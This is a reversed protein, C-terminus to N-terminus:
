LRQLFTYYTRYDVDVFSRSPSNNCTYLYLPQLCSFVLLAGVTLSEWCRKEQKEKVFAALIERPRPHPPTPRPPPRPAAAPSSSVDARPDRQEKQRLGVCRDSAEPSLLTPWTGVEQAWIAPEQNKTGPLLDSLPGGVNRLRRNFVPVDSRRGACPPVTGPGMPGRVQRQTEYAAERGLKRFMVTDNRKTRGWPCVRSGGPIPAPRPLLPLDSDGEQVACVQPANVGGAHLHRSM